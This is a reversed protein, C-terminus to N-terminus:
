GLHTHDTVLDKVHMTLAEQIINKTDLKNFSNALRISDSSHRLLSALTNFTKFNYWNVGIEQISMSDIQYNLITWRLKMAKDNFSKWMSLYNVNVSMLRM